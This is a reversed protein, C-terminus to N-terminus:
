RMPQTSLGYRCGLFRIGTRKTIVTIGPPLAGEARIDYRSLRSKEGGLVFLKQRPRFPQALDSSAGVIFTHQLLKSQLHM